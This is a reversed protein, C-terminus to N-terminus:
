KELTIKVYGKRGKKIEKETTTYKEQVENYKDQMKNFDSILDANEKEFKETDVKKVEVEKDEGDAVLTIKTGNPTEWKKIQYEEMAKKLQEKLKKQSKELEKFAILQNEIEVIQNSLEIVEKPQLDEETILPNEKVKKLDIRFQEIAFDIDELLEKFNAIDIMFTQLRNEDFETNFDSPREYVALMGKKRKAIKMYFLLQVLYIKYDDLNDKIQSTTKIELIFTKNVGDVNARLDGDIFTDEKFNDKPYLSENIYNRIKPELVNGYEIYENGEFDNDLYGAKELLLDFRSKFPSIGMIIPIDPVVLLSIEIM